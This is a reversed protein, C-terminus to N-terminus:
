AKKVVVRASKSVNKAKDAAAVYLVTNTKQPKITVVYNGRSNVKGTGIVKSGVKVTITAGVEGSGTVKKDNSDVKNVKPTAPKTVDKVVVKTAASVNFWDDMATVSLTSGAKQASRIPVTYGGTRSAYATGVVKTGYKVVVESGPEAVGTVKRDNDDVTRVTPAPPPTLDEYLAILAYQDTENMRAVGEGDIALVHYKGAPIDYFFASSIEDFEARDPEILNGNLDFLGYMLDVNGEPNASGSLIFEDFGERYTVEYFDMDEQTKFEGLMYEFMPLNNALEPTDNPEEETFYWEDDQATFGSKKFSTSQQYQSKLVSYQQKVATVDSKFDAASVNAPVSAALLSAFLGTLLVKKM